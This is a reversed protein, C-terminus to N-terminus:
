AHSHTERSLLAVPFDKLLAKLTVKGGMVPEATLRNRWRGEPLTLSTDRWADLL